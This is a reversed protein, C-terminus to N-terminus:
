LGNSLGPAARPRVVLARLVAVALAFRRALEPPLLLQAPRTASQATPGGFPLTQIHPRHRFSVNLNFTGFLTLRTSEPGSASLWGGERV